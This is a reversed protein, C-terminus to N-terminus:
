SASRLEALIWRGDERRFGLFVTERRLDSTGRVVFRRELEAVGRGEEVERIAVLELSREETPRLYRAVLAVAQARSVAASPDAGPIQLVVRRSDGVVAEADQSLWGRRARQAAEALSSQALAPGACLLLAVVLQCKM